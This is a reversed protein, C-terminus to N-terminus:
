TIFLTTKEDLLNKKQIRYFGPAGESSNRLWGIVASSPGNRLALTFEIFACWIALVPPLPLIM